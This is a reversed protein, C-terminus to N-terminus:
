CHLNVLHHKILTDGSQNPLDAFYFTVTLLKKL